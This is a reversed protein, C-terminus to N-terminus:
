SYIAINSLTIISEFKFHIELDYESKIHSLISMKCGRVVKQELM